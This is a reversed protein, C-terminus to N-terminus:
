ACTRRRPLREVARRGPALRHRRDRLQRLDRDAAPRAPQGARRLGGGAARRRLLIGPARCEPRELRSQRGHAEVPRPQGGLRLGAPGPERAAPRRPLAPRPPLVPPRRVAALARPVAPRLYAPRRRKGLITAGALDAGWLQELTDVENALQRLSKDILKPEGSSGSTCLVLRCADLDLAAPPLPEGDIGDLGDLWLDAQAGLRQRSQAQADAPLLVAAGARWAGLLAIALEGADELYLAVRQVGRAQLAGALRLAREQLQAHDLAPALAVARGTLPHLLLEALPLWTM